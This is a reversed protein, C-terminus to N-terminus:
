FAYNVGLYTADADDVSTSQAYVSLGGGLAHRVALLIQEVDNEDQREAILTTDGIKYTAALGTYDTGSASDKDGSEAAVMLAGVSYKIGFATTEVNGLDQTGYYVEGPGFKYAVSVSEGGTNGAFNDVGVADAEPTHSLSVKLGPVFTPLVYLISADSGDAGFGGDQPAVDTYDGVNDLAGSVDGVSITGFPGAVTISEGGDTGVEQGNDVLVNMDASIKWGMATESTASVTVVQDGGNFSTFSDEGSDASIMYYEFDGSITVEAAMVPAVFAPAVFAAAVATAIIKKM